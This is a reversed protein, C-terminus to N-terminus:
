SPLMQWEVEGNGTGMKANNKGATDWKGPLLEPVAIIHVTPWL